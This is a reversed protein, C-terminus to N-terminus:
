VIGERFDLEPFVLKFYKKQNLIAVRFPTYADYGSITFLEPYASFYKRYNKIFDYIGRHIEEITKGDIQDPQCFELRYKGDPKLAFGKLSPESSSLLMEMYVNHREGPNHTNWFERNFSESYLYSTLKEAQFLPASAYTDATYVTNTGAVLGYISCPIKWKEQVLYRLFVAGSGAWGIDVACVKRCGKLVDQWYKQAAEQQEDYCHLVESWLQNLAQIVADSNRSTLRDTMSCGLIKQMPEELKELEMGVLLEHLTIRGDSNHYIFRTFYDHKYHEAVLKVSALRSWYVYECKEDPYLNWYIDHLIKGDRALFLVKDMHHLQAYRHIFTCYGLVLLGGVTYGYEYQPSFNMSGNHLWTNVTGIYASGVMESLTDPRFPRGKEQANPYYVTFFGNEEASEIDSVLNDGIHVYKKENGFQEKVLQFLSGEQKNKEWECSVFLSEPQRYGCKTLLEKLKDSPLYMDSVAIVAKGMACLCDYLRKMYPNAFCLAFEAKIEEEMAKWAVPGMEKELCSYIDSLTVERTKKEQYKKERACKEAQIRLHTFNMYELRLGVFYFLDTPKAIPRYILTDFIDFSIVDYKRLKEALKEPTERCSISSESALTYLKKNENKQIPAEPLQHLFYYYFNCRLLIAWSQGRRKKHREKDSNVYGEYYRQIEPIRRVLLDYLFDKIRKIVRM